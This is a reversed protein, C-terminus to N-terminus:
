EPKPGRKYIILGNLFNRLIQDGCPKFNEHEKNRFIAGLEAKTISFDVLKLIDVIEQDNLKLAVRLKKMIDNNSM